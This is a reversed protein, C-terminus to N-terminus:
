IGYGLRWITNWRGNYYEMGRALEVNTGFSLIIGADDMDEYTNYYHRSTFGTKRLVIIAFKTKNWFPVRESRTEM